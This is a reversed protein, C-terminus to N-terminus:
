GSASRARLPARISSCGLRTWSSSRRGATSGTTSATSCTPTPRGDFRGELTRFIYTLVPVVASRNAMLDAMEFAQWSAASLTDEQADLLVGHPGSLTYPQLAAKVEQDQTTAALMTLTRQSRPAAALNNLATWVEEKVAPTM